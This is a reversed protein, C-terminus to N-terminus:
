SRVKKLSGAGAHPLPSGNAQWDGRRSQSTKDCAGGSPSVSGGNQHNRSRVALAALASLVKFVMALCFAAMNPM